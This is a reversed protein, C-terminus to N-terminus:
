RKESLGGQIMGRIGLHRPTSPPAFIVATIHSYKKGGGLRRLRMEIGSAAYDAFIDRTNENYVIQVLDEGINDNMFVAFVEGKAIQLTEEQPIGFESVLAQVKTPEDTWVSYTRNTDERVYTRNDHALRHPVQRLKIATGGITLLCISLLLITTKM